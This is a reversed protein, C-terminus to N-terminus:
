VYTSLGKRPPQSTYADRQEANISRVADSVDSEIQIQVCAGREMADVTISIAGCRNEQFKACALLRAVHGPSSSSVELWVGCGPESTEGGFFRTQVSETLSVDEGATVLNAPQAMGLLVALWIGSESTPEPLVHM